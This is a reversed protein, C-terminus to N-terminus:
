TSVPSTTAEPEPQSITCRRSRTGWSTRCFGASRKRPRDGAVGGPRGARKRDRGGSRTNKGASQQLDPQRVRRRAPQHGSRLTREHRRAHEMMSQVIRDARKGHKAIQQANIKAAHITELVDGIPSNPSRELESLLEVNLEAFNNVFNLPNKIEHAIGSTLQGLSAMKEQQILQQQTSKLSEHAQQLETHAQRIEEAHALERERAKERAVRLLRRRQVKDIGYVGALLLFGYVLFMAKARWWPPRISIDISAGEENWVGDSSAAIVQFTYEGPELRPYRATRQGGADIWDSDYGELRYRYRNREPDVSHLAVFDFGIDNSTYPLVINESHSISAKLPGDSAPTVSTEALRFGTLLVEPPTPNSTIQNPYFSVLGNLGGFFLEGSNTRFHAHESFQNGPLGDLETYNM